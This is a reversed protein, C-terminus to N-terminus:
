AASHDVFVSRAKMEPFKQYIASVLQPFSTNRVFESLNRVFAQVEPKLLNLVTAGEDKGGPLLRFRRKRLDQDRVIEVLGDNELHEIEEYVNRDFPGYHYPQFDFFPRAGMQPTVLKDILFFLKQVQVPSYLHDPAAALAGLVIDRRCLCNGSKMPPTYRRAADPPLSRFIIPAAKARGQVTTFM